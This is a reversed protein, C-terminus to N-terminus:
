CDNVSVSTNLCRNLYGDVGKGKDQARQLRLRQFDLNLTLTNNVNFKIYARRSRSVHYALSYVSNVLSVAICIRM